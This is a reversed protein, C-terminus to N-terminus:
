QRELEWLRGDSLRFAFEEKNLSEIKLETVDGAKDVKITENKSDLVWTGDYEIFVDLVKMNEYYVGGNKFEIFHPTSYDELNYRVVKWQGILNAESINKSDDCSSIALAAILVFLLIVYNRKMM